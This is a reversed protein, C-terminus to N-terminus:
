WDATFDVLVTVNREQLNALKQPTYEPWEVGPLLLRFSFWGVVAAFVGASLYAKFKASTEATLPTRGIWWCAAWLSFLLALTPVFYDANLVSFIWVVTALLVFGMIQKFTDMWAGPKPLFSILRPFISIMLYPFGMGLGMSAFTGFIVPKPQNLAWALTPVILPGSCPTALLTTLVGKLYAGIPGEREAADMSKGSGVFGPIPIEWVGLFSLAFVFVISALVISFEPSQFQQGWGLGLFVALGTCEFTRVVLCVAIVARLM